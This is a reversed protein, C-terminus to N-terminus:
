DKLIKLLWQKSSIRLTKFSKLGSMASFDAKLPLCDGYQRQIMAKRALELYRSYNSNSFRVTTLRSHKGQFFFDDIFDPTDIDIRQRPPLTTQETDNTKDM